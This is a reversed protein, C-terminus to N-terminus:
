IKKTLNDIESLDARRPGANHDDGDEEGSDRYEDRSNDNCFKLYDANTYKKGAFQLRNTDSM